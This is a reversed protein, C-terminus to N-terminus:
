YLVTVKFFFRLYFLYYFFWRERTATHNLIIKKVLLSTSYSLSIYAYNAFYYGDCSVQFTVEVTLKLQWIYKVIFTRNGECFTSNFPHPQISFATRWFFFNYTYLFYKWGTPIWAKYILQIKNITKIRWPQQNNKTFDTYDNNKLPSKGLWLNIIIIKCGLSKWQVMNYYLVPTNAYDCCRV